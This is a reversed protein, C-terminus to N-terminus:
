ALPKVGIARKVEASVKGLAYPARQKPSTVIFADEKPREKEECFTSGKPIAGVKHFLTFTPWAPFM